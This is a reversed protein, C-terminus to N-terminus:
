KREKPIQRLDIAPVTEVDPSNHREPFRCAPPANFYRNCYDCRGMRNAIARRALEQRLEARTYEDLSRHYSM